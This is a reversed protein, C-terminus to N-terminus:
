AKDRVSFYKDYPFDSGLMQLEAKFHQDIRNQQGVTLLEKANGSRGERMMKPKNAWPTNERPMPLFKHDIGSMYSFSSKEVVAKMEDATLSVGLFDAVRQATLHLDKKMDGFFVILVNPKDRLAWYSATHEAWSSGTSMPFKKTLFLEFWADIDPMFPGYTGLCFHYSSVFVEKPDRVVTVYRSAESYPVYKAPLHTKIVRRHAPSAKQVLTSELAISKIIQMEPWAVVDHIHEYDGAGHFAVQHALQMMWNTGSKAYTCVFIDQVSPTYSVFAHKGGKRGESMAVLVPLMGRKYGLKTLVWHTPITTLYILATNIFYFPKSFKRNLTPIEPTSM